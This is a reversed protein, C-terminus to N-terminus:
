RPASALLGAIVSSSFGAAEMANLGQITHGGPTTVQDILAEPHAGPSNLLLTAASQLTEAVIQAAVAPPIGLQVGGESAARIYRLAYAIGCSALATAAPLQSPPIVRVAGLRQYLNTVEQLHATDTLPAAVVFTLSAGFAIATNPIVQLAIGDWGANPAYTVIIANRPPHIDSNQFEAPSHGAALIVIDAHRCAAMNDTTYNVDPYLAYWRNLTAQSRATVTIDTQPLLNCDILGRLTAGGMAGAGIITIKM